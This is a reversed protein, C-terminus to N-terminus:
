LPQEGTLNMMMSAPQGSPPPPFSLRRLIDDVIVQDVTADGSSKTLRVATVAGSADVSITVGLGASVKRTIPNKELAHQIETQVQSEYYAVASGGGGGGGDFMGDGGPTGSLDFADAPGAGHISTGIRSMAPGPAKPPAAKPPTNQVVPKAVPTAMKPPAITKPQQIPPPPPPPPQPKIMVMTVPPPPKPPAQRAAHTFVFLAGAALVLVLVGVIANSKHESFYAIPNM